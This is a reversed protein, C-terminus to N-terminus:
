SGHLNQIFTIGSEITATFNDATVDFVKYYYSKETETPFQYADYMRKLAEPEIQKWKRKENRLQVVSFEPKVFAFYLIPFGRFRNIMQGRYDSNILTADFCVITGADLLAQARGYALEWVKKELEPRFVYDKSLEFRIEDTSVIVADRLGKKLGGILTSKGSLPPGSFICLIGQKM